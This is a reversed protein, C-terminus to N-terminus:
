LRCIIKIIGFGILGVQVWFSINNVQKDTVGVNELLNQYRQENDLTDHLAHEYIYLEFPQL